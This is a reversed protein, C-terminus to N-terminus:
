RKRKKFPKKATAKVTAQVSKPLKNTLSAATQVIACIVIGYLGYAIENIGFTLPSEWGALMSVITVLMGSGVSILCLAILVRLVKYLM